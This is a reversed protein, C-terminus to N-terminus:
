RARGRRRQWWLLTALGVGLLAWTEPEPVPTFGFVDFRASMPEPILFELNVAQGAWPSVNISSHESTNGLLQGNIRVEVYGAGFFGLTAADAPITGQQSLRIDGSGDLPSTILM